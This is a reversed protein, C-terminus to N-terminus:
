VEGFLQVVSARGSHYEGETVDREIERAIKWRVGTLTAKATELSLLREPERPGGTGYKLQDPTYAELVFVGGPALGAVAATMVRAWLATPLHCFISVVAQFSKAEIKFGDLDAVITQIRVGREAALKQAKALGVVSQDVAVVEHGLSALYVANRGEGEGLCLVKGQPIDPAVSVLFENPETGYAYGPKGYRENWM